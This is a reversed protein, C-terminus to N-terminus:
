LWQIALLFSDYPAKKHLLCYVCQYANLRESYEIMKLDNLILHMIIIKNCSRDYWLLNKRHPFHKWLRRWGCTEGAAVRSAPAVEPAHHRSAHREWVKRCLQSNGSQKPPRRPNGCLRAAAESAPRSNSFLRESALESVISKKKQAGWILNVRFQTKKKIYQSLVVLSLRMGTWLFSLSILRRPSSHFHTKLATLALLASTVRLLHRCWFRWKRRRWIWESYGSVWNSPSKPPDFM